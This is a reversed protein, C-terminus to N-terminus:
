SNYIASLLNRWVYDGDAKKVCIYSIDPIGSGGLVTFIKGRYIPSPTPLSAGSGIGSEALTAKINAWSIKKLAYSAASDEIGMVDNNDPTTKEALAAIVGDEGVLSNSHAENGHENPTRSDSLRSDNGECVTGEATGFDKNFATKKTFSPESGSHPNAASIHTGATKLTTTPITRWNIEGTIAKIM